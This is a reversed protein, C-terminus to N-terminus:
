KRRRNSSRGYADNKSCELRNHNCRILRRLGLFLILASSRALPTIVMSLRGKNNLVVTLTAIGYRQAIWYVSSPASFMFTGDGVIQCVFNGKGQGGALHDAALKVGVAAGGSWGLGAGGSNIWSGPIEARIQDAVAFTQTVAEVVWITNTPCSKRLMAALYPTTLWGDARPAAQADYDKIRAEHASKLDSARDLFEQSVVQKSYMPHNTIHSHVQYLAIASDARYRGEADLYFLPMQQKLPDIDIHITRADSRPKIRIPIFPVDCDIVLLLDAEAISPEVGYRMGVSAPHSFPFCMHSGGTDIVRLGKVTNALTILATVAAPNRGSYGTVVLPRRAQLLADAIHAVAPEALAGSKVPGWLHQRLKYPQIIEELVERAATLYVPGAPDSTAFQLARNVVQKINKSTRIETNYRCYQAVIQKQDPVDQIWHIYESRSGRLEGEATLPSLGAFILVPVRGCSANHIAAGMASTGVDVHVIVCQPKGTHRGFGDAM